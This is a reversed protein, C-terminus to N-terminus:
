AAVFQVIELEAEPAVKELLGEVRAFPGDEVLYETCNRCQLVPVNKVIVITTNALKFPLDTTVSELRGGCITCKMLKAEPEATGLAM